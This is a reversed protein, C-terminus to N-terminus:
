TGEESVPQLPQLPADGLTFYFTAGKGPESRAWIRGGHRMIIRQASALGIGTGEFESPSHLRQFNGFLKEIYAMDFGAGQDRVFYVPRNDDSKDGDDDGSESGIEIVTQDMRSSFKWANSILNDMVLSLLKPDGMVDMSRQIQVKATRRPELKARRAVLGQAMLSLDVKEWRLQLTSLRALLLLADTSEGIQEVGARIRDLYRKGREGLQEAVERQLLESFGMISSLPQRLDHAMSYSFDTLERTAVQLQRTRQKVRDELDVNLWVIEEEFQKSRTIDQVQAILHLPKGDDDRVLSVTLSVWVVHGERHRYRKELQFYEKGSTPLRRYAELSAPRDEELTFEQFSSALLEAETYGIMRSLARNVKLWSGDIRTLAMGIASHEFASALQRDRERLAMAVQKRETIDQVSAIFYSASDNLRLVLAVSCLGWVVSGDRHLYRVESTDSLAQEPAARLNEFFLQYEDRDEPHVHAFVSQGVFSGPSHGLMECYKDNVEICNGNLDVHAIGVAALNFATRQLAESRRATMLLAQQHHILWLLVAGFFLSTFTVVGAALYYTHRRKKVPAMVESQATGVAVFLPYDTLTRYSVYRTVGDIVSKSLANGDPQTRQLSLLEGKSADNGTTVQKGVRRARVVGDLGALAVVGQEGVDSKLYHNTFYAPDVAGVILGAFRGNGTQLRRTIHISWKGSVRGRTPQAIYLTSDNVSQHHKFYARDSANVPTAGDPGAAVNGSADVVALYTFDRFGNVDNAVTELPRAQSGRARFDAEVLDFALDISQLTRRTHQEIAAALNANNLFEVRAAESEEYAARQMTARWEMAVPAVSMLIVILSVLTLRNSIWGSFVRFTM